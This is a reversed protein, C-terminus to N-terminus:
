SQVEKATQAGVLLDANLRQGCTPCSGMEEALHRLDHEADALTTEAQESRGRRDVVERHAQDLERLLRLLIGSDIEEPPDSVGRLATAEAQHRCVTLEALHLTVLLRRLRSTEDLAPPPCLATLSGSLLQTWEVGRGAAMLGVLLARLGATEDLLPPESLSGVVQNVAQRHDLEGGAATLGALLTDLRDAPELEPPDKLPAMAGARASWHDFTREAGSLQRLLTRLTDIRRVEEALPPPEHLAETARRVGTAQDIRLQVAAFQEILDHLKEAPLLKPPRRLSALAAAGAALHNFVRTAIQLGDLARRLSSVRGARETIADYETELCALRDGIGDLPALRELRRDLKTKEEALLKERARAELVDQRHLRQMNILKVADSSSAFFTARHGPSKDLLFIPQKQEGFHVDFSTTGSEVLPLRLLEHLDDPVSGNLRSVERGDLTYSVKDRVRRWEVTHGDDTDVRISCDREGHRVMFDGVANECLTQLASVIASKGCNNPGVLVTLGEALDLVTHGHSM